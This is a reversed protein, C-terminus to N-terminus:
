SFRQIVYPANVPAIHAVISLPVLIEFADRTIVPIEKLDSDYIKGSPLAAASVM